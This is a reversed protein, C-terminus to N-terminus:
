CQGFSNKKLLSFRFLDARPTLLPTPRPCRTQPTKPAPIIARAYIAAAGAVGALAIITWAIDYNHRADYLKGVFWPGQGNASPLIGHHHTRSTQRPFGHRFLEATVLPILMNTAGDFLWLGPRLDM